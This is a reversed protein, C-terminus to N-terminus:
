AEDEECSVAREACTNAIRELVADKENHIEVNWFRLMLIGNAALYADRERDNEQGESTAHSDGDLEVVLKARACYKDLIYPGYPQQRCFKFGALRRNRLLKWMAKEASTPEKRMTRAFHRLKPNDNEM